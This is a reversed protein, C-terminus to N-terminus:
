EGGDLKPPAPVKTAGMSMGLMIRIRHIIKGKALYVVLLQDIPQTVIHIKLNDVHQSICAMIYVASLRDHLKLDGYVRTISQLMEERFGVARIFQLLM